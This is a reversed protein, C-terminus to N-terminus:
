DIRQFLCGGTGESGSSTTRRVRSFYTSAKWRRVPRSSSHYGFSQLLQNLFHDVPADPEVIGNVLELLAEDRAHEAPTVAAQRLGGAREADVPVGQRALHALVLDAASIRSGM